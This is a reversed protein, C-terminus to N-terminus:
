GLSSTRIVRVTSVRDGFADTRSIRVASVRDGFDNTRVVRTKTIRNGFADVRTVQQKSVTSASAASLGALSLALAALTIKAFMTTEVSHSTVPNRNMSTQKSILNARTDRRLEISISYYNQASGFILASTLSHASLDVEHTTACM